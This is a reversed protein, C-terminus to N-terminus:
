SFPTQYHSDCHRKQDTGEAECPAVRDQTHLVVFKRGDGRRGLASRRAVTRRDLSSPIRATPSVSGKAHVGPRIPCGGDAVGTGLTSDGRTCTRCSGELAAAVGWLLAYCPDPL